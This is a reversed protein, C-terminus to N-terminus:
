SKDATDTLLKKQKSSSKRELTSKEKLTANLFLAFPRGGVVIKPTPTNLQLTITEAAIQKPDSFMPFLPLSSITYQVPITANQPQPGNTSSAAIPLPGSESVAANQQQNPAPLSEVLSLVNSAATNPPQVANQLLPGPLSVDAKYDGNRTELTVTDHDENSHLRHGQKSYVRNLKARVNNKSEAAANNDNALAVYVSLALYRTDPGLEMGTNNKPDGGAHMRCVACLFLIVIYKKM